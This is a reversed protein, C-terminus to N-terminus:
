RSLAYGLRIQWPTKQNYNLLSEGYGYFYGLMLYGATGPILRSLPYSAQADVSGYMQRTGKRLTAAFEWSDPKGYAVNLDMYGRYHAIDENESKELYAYVKPAVRWHWDNQDGFYMTPKLFLTNISRSDAGARGNSEHEFGSAISLRSIVSNKVGTDSLYYYLSPRYNTDEFPKSASHLDWLSFQTYAFYLNDIFRKSAPDKGEYIRFKFSLQFKANAGDHAGFMIYMPENFSLRQADRLDAPAPTSAPVNEASVVPTVQGASVPVVAAKPEAPTGAVVPATVTAPNAGPAQNLTILVPAADIGSIDLRVVGRLTTPWEGRFSVTQHEGQRLNLITPGKGIRRLTIPAPAVLDGSASVELTDPVAYRRTDRDGTILLTLTLPQTADVVRPPQLVSVAAAAPTAHFLVASSALAPLLLRFATRPLAVRGSVYRPM